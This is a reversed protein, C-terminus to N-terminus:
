QLNSVGALLLSTKKLTNLFKKTYEIAMYGTGILLINQSTNRPSKLLKKMKKYITNWSELFSEIMKTHQRISENILPLNIKGLSIIEEVLPATM